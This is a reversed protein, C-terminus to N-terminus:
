FKGGQLFVDESPWPIDSLLRVKAEEAVKWGTAENGYRLNGVPRYGSSRYIAAEGFLVSFVDGQEILRDHVKALMERVLGRGRYDPHVCVEAIGGVRFSRGGSEIIREHVGVHAVLRSEANRVVWRHPYPEVFYRRDRFVQDNPGTFCTCFLKRLAEDTLADVAEDALYAPLLKM